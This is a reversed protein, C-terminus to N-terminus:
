RGKYAPKRKELFARIGEAVDETRSSDAIARAEYEMQTELTESFSTGLLNKVFGYAKTAGKALERALKRSRDELEDDPVVETVLGYDEAEQASLTRNTILLEAARRLGVVRPLFYTTSTDAALGSRTYATCFRASSAALVIDAGCCLGFGGGAAVGNVAAILPSDMRAFRSVAAHLFVTMEKTLPALESGAAVFERIDGGVCFIDGSGTLLVARVSPDEDCFIAVKMLEKTMMLNIANQFDPRHLEIRAVGDTVEVRLTEFEM